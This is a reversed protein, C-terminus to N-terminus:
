FMPSISTKRARNVRAIGQMHSISKTARNKGWSFSFLSKLFKLLVARRSEIERMATSDYKSNTYQTTM